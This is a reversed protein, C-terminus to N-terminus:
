VVHLIKLFAGASAGIAASTPDAWEPGEFGTIGSFSGFVLLGLVAGSLVIRVFLLSKSVSLTM